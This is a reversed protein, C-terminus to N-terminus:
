GADFVRRLQRMDVKGSALLPVEAAPLAAFRKPIKYASLEAALRRRLATEDFHDGNELAVVAAVLQGREADPIGLVHAVAGGTVKAIAQEVEAPSVNAGATKIMSGQRRIYYVFGDRDTAVLDGTHFWGDADFCEERSRKYYRQMLCPGRICLEGLAGDEVPTGTSPELIKTELGSAPKGFSGRRHEPQDSEDGSILVVSGAETLGLMNHRLEPDAPRVEPAMIPYLNGRRMSSVDRGGFSPHRALYAIGAAFGNTITPREAELLDLMQGFDEANSCVLTSGALLTALLAFAFGGIWFFPSNCFLKDAATLGRIANLNRQHNLLAAHTHVVGKPASTTGSTHVISLPDSGDVDDEMATLLKEDVTEALRCPRAVNFIVHRLQPAATDFLRDGGDLNSGSLLDTLQQVYDRSRYSPAALLIETDSNVLQDRLEPTTAFTSFPVVVAGVRAAALMGVVFAVGNPYLLGVHSGKGVGLAVLGRALQASRRDAEAYSIRETDCILLPHDDRSRAQQRLIEGVTPSETLM